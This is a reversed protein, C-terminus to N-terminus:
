CHALCSSPLIQVVYVDVDTELSQEKGCLTMVELALGVSEFPSEGSHEGGMIRVGAVFTKMHSLVADRWNTPM